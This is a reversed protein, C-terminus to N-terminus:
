LGLLALWNLIVQMPNPDDLEPDLLSMGHRTGEWHYTQYDEGTPAQCSPASEPDDDSYLCWVPKGLDDLVKVADTYAVNLYSGSSLSLAGWCSDPFEVNLPGCADPAGDAGISAGFTAVKNPDVGELQRAAKLAALSDMRWPDPLWNKCGEPIPFCDRLSFTFVAYSKGEPMPPFWTPDLWTYQNVNPSTGSLGRNQLWFAVENWDEMDGVVWHVLVIVPAPNVAAPYYRGRLVQGDEAVFEIDQPEPPLPALGTETPTPEPTETPAPTDTPPLPTPEETVIIEPVEPPATLLTDTVTQESQQPISTEEAGTKCAALLIIALAMLLIVLDRRGNKM